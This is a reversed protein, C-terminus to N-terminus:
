FYVVSYLDDQQEQDIGIYRLTIAPSSHNFMKQILGINYKSATYSFYGWTKRLSHTGFNEIGVADAADKFIRYAQTTSIHHKEGDKTKRSTFLYDDMELDNSKVYDKIVKKISDNLKIVKGKRTKTETLSFYSKFTSKNKMIDGVKVDVVDCIRLGLNLQLKALLWDRENTGKLQKLFADIKKKNKIPEVM